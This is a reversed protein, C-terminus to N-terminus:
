VDPQCLSCPIFGDETAQSRPVPEAEQGDIIECGRRHYRPRGDIVWVDPDGAGQTAPQATHRRNAAGLRGRRRYILVGALVSAAISAALWPASSLLLGVCLCALAAVLLLVVLM